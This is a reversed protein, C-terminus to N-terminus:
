APETVDVNGRASRLRRIAWGILLTVLVGTLFGGFAYWRFVGMEQQITLDDRNNWLEVVRGERFRYINVGTAVVPGNKGVLRRMIGPVGAPNGRSTWRVAVMDGDTMIVDYEFRLDPMISKVERTRQSQPIAEGPGQVPDSGDHRIYDPAFIEDAVAYNDNHWVEEYFRMVQEKNRETQAPGQEQALGGVAISLFGMVLVLPKINM